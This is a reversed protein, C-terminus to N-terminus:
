VFLCVFVVLCILVEHASVEGGKCPESSVQALSCSVMQLRVCSLLELRLSVSITLSIFLFCTSIIVAKSEKPVIHLFLWSCLLNLSVDHSASVFKLSLFDLM